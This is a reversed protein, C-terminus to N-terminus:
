PLPLAVIRAAHGQVSFATPAHGESHADFHPAKLRAFALVHEGGRVVASRIAGVPEDIGSAVVPADIAPLESGAIELVALRRKVKGRLDQMCVVEQGLYCGKDWSVARRDLAAEHPNDDSGYDAGFEPFGHRLRLRKWGDEDLAEAGPDLERLRSLAADLAGAEFSLAAGGVGLWDITGHAAAQGSLAESLRTARPGVLRVWSLQPARELEVDEMVLHADLVKQVADGTGRAVGIVLEGPAALVDMDTQIKGTKTLLLAFAGRGPAVGRLDASVLGNLWSVADAGRARLTERSADVFYAVSSPQTM